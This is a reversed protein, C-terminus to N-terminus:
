VGAVDDRVAEIQGKLRYFQWRVYRAALRWTLRALWLLLLTLALGFMLLGVGYKLVLKSIREQAGTHFSIKNDDDRSYMLAYDDAKPVHIQKAIGARVISYWDIQADVVHGTVTFQSGDAGNLKLTRVQRRDIRYDEQLDLPPGDNVRVLKNGDAKLVVIQSQRDIVTVTDNPKLQVVVDECHHKAADLLTAPEHLRQADTLAALRAYEAESLEGGQKPATIVLASTDSLVDINNLPPWGTTINALWVVVLLLGAFCVMGSAVLLCTLLCLYLMFPIAVIFNLAGLGAIAGITRFLNGFNRQNEWTRYLTQVRLEKALRRPDGLAACIEAESRGDRLADGFYEIYDSLIESVTQRPLDHLGRELQEIFAKQNM